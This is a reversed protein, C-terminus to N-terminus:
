NPTKAGPKCTAGLWRAEVTMPPIWYGNSGTTGKTKLTFRTPSYDGSADVKTIDGDSNKKWTGVFRAKGNAM